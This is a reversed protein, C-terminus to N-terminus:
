ISVGPKLEGNFLLLSSAGCMHTDRVTTMLGEGDCETAPLNTTSGRDAGRGECCATM